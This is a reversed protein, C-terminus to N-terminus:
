EFLTEDTAYRYAAIFLGFFILASISVIITVVIDPRAFYRIFFNVGIFIPVMLTGAGGGGGNEKAHKKRWRVITEFGGLVIAIINIIFMVLGSSNWDALAAGNNDVFIFLMLIGAFLLIKVILGIRESVQKTYSVQSAGERLFLIFNGIAMSCALCLVIGYFIPSYGTWIQWIPVFVTSYQAFFSITIMLPIAALFLGPIVVLITPINKKIGFAHLILKVAFFSGFVAIIPAAFPFILFFLCFIANVMYFIKTDVRVKGMARWMLEYSNAMRTARIISALTFPLAFILPAIIRLIVLEATGELPNTSSWFFFGALSASKMPEVNMWIFFYAPFIFIQLLVILRNIMLGRTDVM